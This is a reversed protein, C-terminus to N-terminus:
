RKNRRAAKQRPRISLVAATKAHKRASRAVLAAEVLPGALEDLERGHVLQNAVHLSMLGHLSIWLAHVLTRADGELEGADVYAQVANVAHDFLQRRAALLEPYRDPPPQEISFMLRYIDANLSAFEIYARAISNLHVSMAQSASERARIYVDFEIFCDTRIRALLADKDAFYRYPLTHSIGAYEALRRFTIADLGESRYISLAARALHDRM